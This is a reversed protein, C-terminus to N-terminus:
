VMKQFGFLSFGCARFVGIVRGEGKEFFVKWM